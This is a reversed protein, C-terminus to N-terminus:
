ENFQLRCGTRVSSSGTLAFPAGGFTKTSIDEFTIFQATKTISLTKSVTNAAAYTDDGAQSVTIM